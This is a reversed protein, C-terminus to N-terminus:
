RRRQGLAPYYHGYYNFVTQHGTPYQTTSGQPSFDAQAAISQLRKSIEMTQMQMQENFRQQQLMPRVLTNYNLDSSGELDERFLNLYPSTTPSPSYSSFPKSAPSSSGLGFSSPNSRGASSQGVYPVRAQTNQLVLQNL